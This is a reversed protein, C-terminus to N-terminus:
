DWHRMWVIGGELGRLRRGVDNESVFTIRIKNNLFIHHQQKKEIKMNHETLVEDLMPLIYGIDRYNTIVCFVTSLGLEILGAVDHCKAFTKGVGRGSTRGDIVDHLRDIDTSM